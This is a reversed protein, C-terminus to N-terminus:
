RPLYVAVNAVDGQDLGLARAAEQSLTAARGGAGPERWVFTVRTTAGTATDTIWGMRQKRDFPGSIWAGARAEAGTFVAPTFGVWRANALTPGVADPDVAAVQVDVSTSPEPEEPAATEPNVIQPTVPEVAPQEPTPQLVPAEVEPVPQESVVPPALAITGQADPTPQLEPGEDTVVVQEENARDPAIAVDQPLSPPAPLSPAGSSQSADTTIAVDPSQGGPATLGGAPPSVPTPRTAVSNVPPTVPASTQSTATPVSPLASGTPQSTSANGTPEAIVGDPSTTVPTEIRGASPSQGGTSGTARPVDGSRPEALALETDSEPASSASPATAAVGGAEGLPFPATTTGFAPLAVDAPIEELTLEPVVAVDAPVTPESGSPRVPDTAGLAPAAVSPAGITPAEESGGPTPAAAIQAGAVALENVSGSSPEAFTPQGTIPASAGSGATPSPGTHAVNAALSASTSGLAPEPPVPASVAPATSTGGSQPQAAVTTNPEALPRAPQPTVEPVTPSTAIGAVPAEVPEALPAESSAPTVPLGAIEIASPEDEIPLPVAPADAATEVQGLTEAIQLEDDDPQEAPTEPSPPPAAVIQVEVAPQPAEDTIAILCGDGCGLTDMWALANATLTEGSGSFPLGRREAMVQGTSANVIQLSVTGGQITAEMRAPMGGYFYTENAQVLAQNVANREASTSGGDVQVLGINWSEGPFDASANSSALVLTGIATTMMLKVMAKCPSM